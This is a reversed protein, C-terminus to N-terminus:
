ALTYSNVRQFTMQNILMLLIHCPRTNYFSSVTMYSWYCWNLYCRSTHLHATKWKMVCSPASQPCAFTLYMLFASYLVKVFHWFFLSQLQYSLMVDSSSALLVKCEMEVTEFYYLFCWFITASQIPWSGQAHYSM